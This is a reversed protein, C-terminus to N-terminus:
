CSKMVEHTVISTENKSESSVCNKGFVVRSIINLTHVFLHDKLKLPKGTGSLTCLRSMFARMEEVRIYQYSDLRKSNLLESYIKRGQRWYPGAPAWTVNLYNYSLHHDHTKLFEKAMEASSAVVVPFSGIKLQMIPGYKQALIHLSKPAHSGVLNLNGIIPWPKPGPPFKLQRSKFPLLKSLFALAALSAMAILAWSSSSEM